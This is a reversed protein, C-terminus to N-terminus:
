PRAPLRPPAPRRPVRHGPVKRLRTPYHGPWAAIQQTVLLEEADPHEPGLLRECDAV